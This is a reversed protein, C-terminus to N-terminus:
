DSLDEDLARHTATALAAVRVLHTQFALLAEQRAPDWTRPDTSEEPELQFLQIFMQSVRPDDQISDAIANIANHPTETM